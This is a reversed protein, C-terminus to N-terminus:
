LFRPLIVSTMILLPVAVWIVWKRRALRGEDYSFEHRCRECEHRYITRGYYGGPGHHNELDIVWRYPKACKPCNVRTDDRHEWYAMASMIVINGGLVWLYPLYDTLDITM